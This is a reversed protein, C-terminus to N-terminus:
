ECACVILMMLYKAAISCDINTICHIRSLLVMRVAQASQWRLCHNRRLCLQLQQEGVLAEFCCCCCTVSMNTLKIDKGTGEGTRFASIYSGSQRQRCPWWRDSEGWEPPSDEPESTVHGNSCANSQQQYERPRNVSWTVSLEVMSDTADKGTATPVRNLQALSMRWRECGVLSLTSHHM